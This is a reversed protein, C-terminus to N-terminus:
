SRGIVVKLLEEVRAVATFDPKALAQLTYIYHGSSALVEVGGKGGGAPPTFTIIMARTFNHDTKVTTTDREPAQAHAALQAEANLARAALTASALETATSKLFIERPEYFLTIAASRFGARSLISEESHRSSVTPDNSFAFQPATLAGSPLEENKAGPVDSQRLVRLLPAQDISDAATALGSPALAGLALGVILGARV